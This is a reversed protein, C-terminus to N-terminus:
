KKITRFIVGEMSPTQKALKTLQLLFPIQNIGKKEDEGMRRLIDKRWLGIWKIGVKEEWLVLVEEYRKM